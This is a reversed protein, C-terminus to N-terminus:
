HLKSLSVVVLLEFCYVVPLLVPVWLGKTDLLFIHIAKLLKRLTVSKGCKFLGVLCYVDPHLGPTRVAPGTSKGELRM